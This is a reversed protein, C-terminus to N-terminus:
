PEARQLSERYRRLAARHSEFAIKGPDIEDPRVLLFESIDDRAAANVLDEVGAVFVAVSTCYVVERFPYRESQSCLYVPASVALNLEEQLERVLADELNEGYDVFGGPLGLFGKRPERARRTLIIKGAYEVIALAVAATGHYYVFGCARCAISKADNAQLRKEGCRPCYQFGVLDFINM